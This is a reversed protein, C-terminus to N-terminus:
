ILVHMMTVISWWKTRARTVPWTRELTNLPLSFM